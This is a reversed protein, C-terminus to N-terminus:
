RCSYGAWSISQPREQGVHSQWISYNGVFSPFIPLFLWGGGIRVLLVGLVM